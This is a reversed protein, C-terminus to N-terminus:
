VVFLQNRGNNKAKYLAIDVRKLLDGISENQRSTQTIGISITPNTECGSQSFNTNKLTNLLKKAIKVAKEEKTNRLLIIFEDGGIRALLDNKRIVRESEKALLCLISDGTTHGYTDNIKKLFDIDFMILSFTNEPKALEKNIEQSLKRRNYLGTLEDKESLERLQSELAKRKTINRAAWLVARQGEYLEPLAKIRGEFYIENSPGEQEDLGDVDFNGLTYEVIHIGTQNLTITINEHFWKATESDLVDYLSSNVLGSGDHYFRSDCGGYVALYKGSENLVFVPDPLSNLISQLQNQKSSKNM